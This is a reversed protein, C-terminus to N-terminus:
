GGRAVMVMIGGVLALGIGTWKLAGAITQPTDKASKFEQYLERYEADVKDFQEKLEAAGQGSHMSPRSQSQQLKLSLETAQNGLETLRLSKQETWANSPPFIVAWLLSLVILLVGLAVAAPALASKM